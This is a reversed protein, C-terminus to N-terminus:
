LALRDGRNEERHHQELELSEHDTGHKEATVKTAGTNTALDFRVKKLLLSVLTRERTRECHMVFADEVNALIAHQTGEVWVTLLHDLVEKM